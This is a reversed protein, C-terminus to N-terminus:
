EAQSWLKYAAEGVVYRVAGPLVNVIFPSTDELPEGDFQTLLPPDSVVEIHKARFYEMGQAKSPDIHSKREAVRAEHLKGIAAFPDFGENVAQNRKMEKFDDSGEIVNSVIAPILEVANNTGLMTVDLYGDRPMNETAAPLEFQMKSFNCVLIGVGTREIINGDLNITFKASQPVPNTFAAYFYGMSGMISKLDAAKSMIAADYGCGAILSFGHKKGNVEFEGMDFDLTAMDRAAKALAYPETPNDLNMCLANSTGSPFPLIPVGTYRLEYSISAVTGDGGSAVVLDFQNADAVLQKFTLGVGINRLVVEDGAESLYRMFDFIMGDNAGAYVNNVILVRM